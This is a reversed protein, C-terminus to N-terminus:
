QVAAVLAVNELSSYAIYTKGGSPLAYRVSQIKNNTQKEVKLYIDRM